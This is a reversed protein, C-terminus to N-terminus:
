IEKYEQNGLKKMGIKEVVRISAKNNPRACGYISEIDTQLFAQRIIEEGIETAYGKGWYNTFVKWEIEPMKDKFPNLGTRGIIKDDHKM